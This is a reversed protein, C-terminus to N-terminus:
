PIVRLYLVVYLEPVTDRVMEASDQGLGQGQGLQRFIRPGVGEAEGFQRFIRSGAGSGLRVASVDAVWCVWDSSIPLACSQM